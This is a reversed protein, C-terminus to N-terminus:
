HRYNGNSLEKNYAALTGSIYRQELQAILIDVLEEVDDDHQAIVFEGYEKVAYFNHLELPTLTVPPIDHFEYIISDPRTSIHYISTTCIGFLTGKWLVTLVAPEAKLPASM